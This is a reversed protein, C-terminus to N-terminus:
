LRFDTISCSYLSKKRRKVRAKTPEGFIARRRPRCLQLNKNSLELESHLTGVKMNIQFPTNRQTKEVIYYLFASIFEAAGDQYM